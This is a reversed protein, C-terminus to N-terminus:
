RTPSNRLRRALDIAAALIFGAGVISSPIGRVIGFVQLVGTILGCALFLGASWRAGQALSALCVFCLLGALMLYGSGASFLTGIVWEGAVARRGALAAEPELHLALGLYAFDIAIQGALLVAGGGLLVAAAVALVVSFRGAVIKRLYDAWVLAALPYAVAAVLLFVHSLRWNGANAVLREMFPQGQEGRTALLLVQGAFSFAPALVALIAKTTRDM